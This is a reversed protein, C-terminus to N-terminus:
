TPKILKNHNTVIKLKYNSNVNLLSDFKSIINMTLKNFILKRLFSM